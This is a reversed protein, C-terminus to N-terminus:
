GEAEALDPDTGLASGRTSRDWITHEEIARHMKVRNMTASTFDAATLDAHSFDAYKANVNVFKAGRCVTKNFLAQELNCETFDALILNAEEFCSQVFYSGRLSVGSLNTGMFVTREGKVKELVAGTMDANMFNSQTIEAGTFDCGKM